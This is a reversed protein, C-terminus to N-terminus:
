GTWVSYSSATGENGDSELGMKMELGERCVLVEKGEWFLGSGVERGAAAAARGHLRNLRATM